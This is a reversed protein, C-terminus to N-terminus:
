GAVSQVRSVVRGTAGGLALAMKLQQTIELGPPNKALTKIQIVTWLIFFVVILRIGYQNSFYRYQLFLLGTILTNSLAIAIIYQALLGRQKFSIIDLAWGIVYVPFVSVTPFLVIAFLMSLNDQLTFNIPM